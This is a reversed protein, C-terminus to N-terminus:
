GIQICVSKNHDNCDFHASLHPMNSGVDLDSDVLYEIFAKRSKTDGGVFLDDVYLCVIIWKGGNQTRHYICSNHELRKLGYKHLDEDILNHWNHGAQHMGYLSQMNHLIM